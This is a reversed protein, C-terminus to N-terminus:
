PMSKIQGFLSWPSLSQYASLVSVPVNLTAQTLDVSEFILSADAMSGTMFPLQPPTLAYCSVEKLSMCDKFAGPAITSLTSPLSLVSLHSCGDFANAQIGTVGEPVVFAKLSTCNQFVDWAITSISSPMTVQNLATCNEFAATQITTVGYDIYARTIKTNGKFAYNLIKDVRYKKGSYDVYGPIYMYGSYSPDALGNLTATSEGSTRYNLDYKFDGISVNYYTGDAYCLTMAMAFLLYFFLRKM